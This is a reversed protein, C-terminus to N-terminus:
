HEASGAMQMEKENADRSSVVWTIKQAQHWSECLCSLCLNTSYSLVSPPLYPVAWCPLQFSTDSPSPLVQQGKQVPPAPFGENTSLNRWYSIWTGQLLCDAMGSNSWKTALLPSFGIWQRNNGSGKELLFLRDQTMVLHTVKNNSCYHFLWVVTFLLSWYGLLSLFGAWLSMNIVKAGGSM